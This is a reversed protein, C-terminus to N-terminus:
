RDKEIHTPPLPEVPSVLRVETTPQSPNPQSTIQAPATSDAATAGTTPAKVTGDGDDDNDDMLGKTESKFIRLARGTGRAMDPLKKAGFLLMLVFVIIILEPWGLGAM